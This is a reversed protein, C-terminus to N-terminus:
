RKLCMSVVPSFASERRDVVNHNIIVGVPDLNPQVFPVINGSYTEEYSSNHFYKDVYDYSGHLKVLIVVVADVCPMGSIQWQRYSCTSEWLDVVVNPSFVEYIYDSSPVAIWSRGKEVLERMRKDVHKCLITSWTAAKWM